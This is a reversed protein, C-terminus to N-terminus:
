DLCTSAVARFSTQPRQIAVSESASVALAAEKPNQKVAMDCIEVAEKAQVKLADFPVGEGVRNQDNPNAALLDCRQESQSLKKLEDAEEAAADDEIKKAAAAADAAKKAEDAADKKLNLM